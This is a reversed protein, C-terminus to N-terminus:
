NPNPVVKIVGTEVIVGLPEHSLVLGPMSGELTPDAVDVPVRRTDKFVVAKVIRAGSSEVPSRHHTCRRDGDSPGAGGCGAAGSAVRSARSVAGILGGVLMSSIAQVRRGNDAGSGGALRSAAAMTGLMTTLVMTSNFGPIQLRSTTASQIGMAAALLGVLAYSPGAREETVVLGVVIAITVLFLEIATMARLLHPKGFPWIRALRGAALAGIFFSLVAVVSSGLSLGTAGALAFGVFVINGTMNAVFVHGFKLYSAADVLGSVGTLLLLVTAM